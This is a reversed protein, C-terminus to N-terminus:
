PGDAIRQEVQSTFRDAQEKTVSGLSVAIKMDHRVGEIRERQESSLTKRQPLLPVAAMTRIVNSQIAPSATKAASAPFSGVAATGALTAAALCTGAAVRMSRVVYKPRYRM